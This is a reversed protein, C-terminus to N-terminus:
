KRYQIANDRSASSVAIAPVHRGRTNVTPTGALAAAAHRGARRGSFVTDAIALGTMYGMSCLGVATRGAAYLGAIVSGDERKVEGSDDDVVLGGMSFAFTPGFKNDLSVNVAYFPGRTVTMMKDPSKGHLDPQGAVTRANFDAITKEIGETKIGTKRALASLTRARRTGGLVINLLAPAGWLKFLGKGPFLSQKVGKWFHERDLILYAKGDEPQEALKDGFLSQYADENIFREGNLNVMLGYLFAEPPAIPRGLFYRDMLGIRGGATQGLKIGSGDCGMSGLRLLGTYSRGLIPRHEKLMDLNYIFGGTSLIVGGRARIRKPADFRAELARCEKIAKESREGNMPKWPSVVAYLRDQESWIEPPLANVEIGLVRGNRDLILRRAPAHTLMRVGKALGAERLATYHLHGGFGPTMPLHGRPAPKATDKFQPLRENGSFFLWHGPAPYATKPLYVNGGYPVGHSELWTLDANSGQCFRRLAVPGLANGEATLYKFMEEANDDYGAAKQHQTGAAYIVGGSFSTAGGGNFRDIALVEAGQERAELAAAAGAGGFGVVVVDAQDDWTIVDADAIVLPTSSLGVSGDYAAANSSDNM